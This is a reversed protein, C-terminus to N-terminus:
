FFEVRPERCVDVGWSERITRDADVARIDFDCVNGYEGLPVVVERGPPLGGAGIRNRDWRGHAVPAAYLELLPTTGRNRVTLSPGAPTAAAAPAPGASRGTLLRDMEERTLFGTEDTGLVDQYRRIATRVGVGFVGDIRGGYFGMRTLAEQVRRRQERGLRRDLTQAAVLAAVARDERQPRPAATSPPSAPGPAHLEDLRNRALAAFTGDPYRGLYAEFDAPDGSDRVSEWFVVEASPTRAGDPPAITQAVPGGEGPNFYFEGIISEEVWPVQVGDTSDVVSERVRRFMLGVELDPEVVWRVLAQTFPSHRGDGDLALEGPATAYAILTGTGARTRALGDGVGVSRGLNDSFRALRRVMPNNRCADLVVVSLGPGGEEMEALVLSLTFAEYHLDNPEEIQADVPILFNEGFMQLGHGAYFFLAVEAGAARDGFSRIAQAMTRHDADRVTAVDFGISRLAADMAAADNPPNSLPVNARYAGNGIILAVRDGAAAGSPADLTLALAVVAFVILGRM